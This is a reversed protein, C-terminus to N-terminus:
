PAALQARACVASAGLLPSCPGAASSSSRWVGLCSSHYADFAASGFSVAVGALLARQRYLLRVPGAFIFGVLFGCLVAGLLLGASRLSRDSFLDPVWQVWVALESHVYWYGVAVPFFLLIQAALRM